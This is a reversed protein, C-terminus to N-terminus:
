NIEPLRFGPFATYNIAYSTYQVFGYIAGDPSTSLDGAKFCNYAFVDRYDPNNSDREILERLKERVQAESGSFSFLQTAIDQENHIAIIWTDM